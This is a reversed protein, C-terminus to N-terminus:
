ISSNNNWQTERYSSIDTVSMQNLTESLQLFEFHALCMSSLTSTNSQSLTKSRVHMDLTQEPATRSFGHGLSTPTYAFELMYKFFTIFLKICSAQPANSKIYYINLIHKRNHVATDPTNTSRKKNETKETIM